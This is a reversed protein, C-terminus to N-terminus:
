EYRILMQLFFLLCSFMSDGVNALNSALKLADVVASGVKVDELGGKIGFSLVAGYYGPKLLRKANAHSPHSELGPYFVWAVREHKELWQALALANDSAREVRLSITELGQLLAWAAFPNLTAGLDRLIEIRL